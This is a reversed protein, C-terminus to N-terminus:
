TLMSSEYLGGYTVTFQAYKSQLRAGNVAENMCSRQHRYTYSRKMDSMQILKNIIDTESNSPLMQVHCWSLSPLFAPASALVRM